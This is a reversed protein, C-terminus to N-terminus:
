EIKFLQASYCIREGGECIVDADGILGWGKPVPSMKDASGSLAIWGETVDDDDFWTAYYTKGEFDCNMITEQPRATPDDRKNRHEEIYPEM